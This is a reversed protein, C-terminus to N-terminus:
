VKFEQIKNELSSMTTTLNQMNEDIEIVKHANIEAKDKLNQMINNLNDLNKINNTSHQAVEDISKVSTDMTNHIDDIQNEVKNAIEILKQSENATNSIEENSNNIEQVIVSVTSNIETLSKQTKEALQRVEDAVVAFGRGHEGARAAEIAANLALLNTQDAIDNIISLINQIDNINSTLQNMRGAIEIEKQVSEEIVINLNDIDTKINELKNQTEKIQTASSITKDVNHLQQATESSLGRRKAVEFSVAVVANRFRNLLADTFRQREDDWHEL